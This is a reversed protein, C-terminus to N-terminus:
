LAAIREEIERYIRPARRPLDALGTGLGDAPIVVDRSDDLAVRMARFAYHIALSVKDNLWDEDTFYATPRNNPAWKTPVGIANPEDRMAAAQGGYGTRAMNDGFVWVTERSAQVMERTIHKLRLVKGRTV